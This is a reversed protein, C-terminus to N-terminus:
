RSGYEQSEADGTDMGPWLHKEWLYGLSDATRSSRGGDEDYHFTGSGLLGLALITTLFRNRMEFRRYGHSEVGHGSSIPMGVGM